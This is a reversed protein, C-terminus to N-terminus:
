ITRKISMIQSTLPIARLMKTTTSTAPLPSRSHVFRGKDDKEFAQVVFGVTVKTLKDM